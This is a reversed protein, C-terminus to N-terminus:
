DKQLTVDHGSRSLLLWVFERMAVPRFVAPRSGSVQLILPMATEDPVSAVDSWPWLPQCDSLAGIRNRFRFILVSSQGLITPAIQFRGGRDDGVNL